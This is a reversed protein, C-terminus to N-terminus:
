APQLVRLTRAAGDKWTVRGAERLRSLHFVITDPSSVGIAAAIERITPAHGNERTMTTIVDVIQDRRNGGGREYSM